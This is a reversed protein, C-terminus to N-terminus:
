NYNGPHFNLLFQNPRKPSPEPIVQADYRILPYRSYVRRCLELVEQDTM